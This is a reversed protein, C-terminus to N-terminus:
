KEERLYPILRMLNIFETVFYEITMQGLRLDHFEKAKEYFNRETLYKHKFYRKFIKWTLENSRVKNVIKEGGV